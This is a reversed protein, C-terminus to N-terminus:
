TDGNGDIAISQAADYLNGGIFTSYILATGTSNLKIVFADSSGGNHTQDYAGATTPFNGSLTSGTIYANDNGDLVIAVCFDENSGGIYTSYILATGTSNLKTVYVDAVGNHTQDYAGVTTPFNGSYTYGTLYANGSGDVVIGYGYDNNSGGIFTSYILATGTSNLKTVFIDGNGNHSQDYAGASTPYAVSSTGGLIYANGSGDVAISHGTENATNGIFTSYILPDIVLPLAPNYNGLVFSAKGNQIQWQANITKKTGNVNQYVLLEAQKVEGFRTTFILDNGRVSFNKAGEISLQIQKYDANPEVIYDYRLNNNEFYWRQAIGNYVNEIQAEAYLGVNSAWKSEDNGIFYNYCASSKNKGVPAPNQNANLNAVRVVQGYRRSEETEREHRMIGASQKKETAYFDYTVGAKTIWADLGGTRVLYLVDAHWQGKNEIFFQQQPIQTTPLIDKEIHKLGYPTAYGSCCAFLCLVFASRTFNINYKM